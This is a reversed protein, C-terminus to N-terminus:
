GGQVRKLGDQMKKREKELEELRARTNEVVEERARQTFDPSALRNKLPGMEQELQFLAKEFRQTEAELDLIGGVPIVFTIGSRVAQIAGKVHKVPGEVIQIDQLKLLRRLLADHRKFISIEKPSAEFVELQLFQKIPINMETRVSRLLTVWGIVESIEHQAEPFPSIAVSDAVARSSLLTPLSDRLSAKHTVPKLLPWPREFLPEKKESQIAAWLEETVFPILPHLLHLLQGLVWGAVARTEVSEDTENDLLGKVLEIYWDCYTGRVFHYLLSAAEYFKYAEFALTVQMVLATFEHLLWQNIVNQPSSPQLSFSFVCGKLLCFRTANWLKTIFNRYSEVQHPDFAVDRGPSAGSTLALRLADAGYLDMLSLPDVVNGKTKSMKQRHADRVLGHIYVDRFPVDKQAYLGMMVMRAVWFFIIDFGTVLVDSPYYRDLDATKEPWGLTVFPWLASSFWTDLVDTEPTLTVTEGYHAYAQEAVAAEDMGVFPKGDPGYWAPIPHGWWLQRSLCWPQIERMWRAYVEGYAEPFFRLRGQEWVELAPKALVAADLYWQDTLRPELVVGSRDGHPIAHVIEQRDGLLDQAGLEELVRTRAQFRELKQYPTPVEHNLFGAEDLITLPQLGHRRGMEFDHFDHAPTIKVAGTGKEREVASDLILPIERNTLPLHLKKGHLTKFREDLPHVAVAQDGFLTEPRTTAVELFTSSEGVVPYRIRWMVGSVESSVVELDSLATRLAPDWNVLRKDRYILGAKWLDVFILRVAHNVSPDLTFLTRKWDATIGLRKLQQLITGGSEEKWAWVKELFAERGLAHRSEGKEALQREVVMQTAIGAHDLGPQLLVDGGRMRWFRAWVDQLTFTLAHGLHLSGTVNPPPMILCFPAKTKDGERERTEWLKQWRGELASPTYTKELMESMRNDKIGANIQDGVISQLHYRM